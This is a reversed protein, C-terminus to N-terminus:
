LTTAAAQWHKLTLVDTATCCYLLLLRSTPAAAVALLGGGTAHQM